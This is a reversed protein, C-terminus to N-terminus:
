KDSCIPKTLWDSMIQDQESPDKHWVRAEPSINRM